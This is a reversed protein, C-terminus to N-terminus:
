FIHCEPDLARYCQDLSPNVAGIPLVVAEGLWDTITRRKSSPACLRNAVM